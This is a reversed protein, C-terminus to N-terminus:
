LAIDGLLVDTQQVITSVLFLKGLYPLTLSLWLAGLLFTAPRLDINNLKPLIMIVISDAYLVM